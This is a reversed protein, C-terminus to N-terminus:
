MARMGSPLRRQLQEELFGVLLKNLLLLGLVQIVLVMEQPRVLGPYVYPLSWSWPRKDETMCTPTHHLPPTGVHVTASVCRSGRGPIEAMIVVM